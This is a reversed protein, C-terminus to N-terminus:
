DNKSPKVEPMDAPAADPADFNFVRRRGRLEIVVYQRPKIRNLTDVIDVVREMVRRRINTPPVLSRSVDGAYIRSRTSTRTAQSLSM